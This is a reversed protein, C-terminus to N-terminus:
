SSVFILFCIPPLVTSDVDPSKGAHFLNCHVDFVTACSYSLSTELYDWLLMPTMGRHTGPWVFWTYLPYFSSPFMLCLPRTSQGHLRSKQWYESWLPCILEFSIKYFALSHITLTDTGCRLFWLQQALRGRPFCIKCHCCWSFSLLPEANGM